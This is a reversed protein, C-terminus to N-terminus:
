VPVTLHYISLTMTKTVIVFSPIQKYYCKLIPKEENYKFFFDSIDTIGKLLSVPELSFGMNTLRLFRFYIKCPPYM